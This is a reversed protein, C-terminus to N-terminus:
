DSRRTLRQGNVFGRMAEGAKSLEITVAGTNSQLFPMAGHRYVSASWRREDTAPMNYGGAGRVVAAPHAAEIFEDTGELDTSQGGLVVVDARVEQSHDMLWHEGSFGSDAMLLVRKAGDEIRLVLSKDAATSVALGAPPYLVTCSVGPEIELENGPELSTKPTGEKQLIEHFIRRTPSRDTVSSEYIGRPSYDEIVNNYAGISGAAGHTLVFGELYNVGNAQLFPRVVRSYTAANGCDILWTSSSAQVVIAQGPELDLVTIRCEPLHSSTSVFFHGAPLWAFFHVTALMTRALLWNTNNFLTAVPTFWSTLLSFLSEGLICFALPVLLLNAILASPTILNFYGANFPVAGLSAATSVAALGAVWRWGINSFPQLATWLRRPLYEDPIGLPLIPKEILKALLIIAAVVGFSFQFGTKFLENTDWLLLILAAAALSNLSFPRREFFSAGFLVAAMIAARVSGPNLGTVLAYAFLAPIIIAAFARRYIRFPKLLLGLITALLAVHLGNVVFLHLAGAHQFLERDEESTEQKSGLTITQILGAIEPDDEIGLTIRRELGARCTRALALLRNGNGHGIVQCDEPYESSLEAFIGRRALYIAYNFEGPNRPSPMPAISAVLSVEDGWVPTPGSWYIEVPFASRLTNSGDNIETVRMEFHSHPARYAYEATVPDSTVIGTVQVSSSGNSLLDIPIRGPNERWDIEHLILFVTCVLLGFAVLGGRRFTAMAFCVAALCAGPLWCPLLEPILIGPIACLLIGM